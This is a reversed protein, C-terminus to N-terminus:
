TEVMKYFEQFMKEVEDKHKLLYLWTMRTCDDIFMVYWRNGNKSIVPSPGWVDTHVLDFPNRTKTMSDHYSTRHSKAEICTHCSFDKDNIGNFLHPSLKKLYGFSPHGLRKHWLMIKKKKEDEMSGALYAKGNKWDEFYYLGDRKTGHGIIRKSLLDQFVCHDPYMLAVCNLDQTLKGVSILQTSLSPVLLADNLSVDSSLKIDGAATVPYIKGNANIIGSKHAKKTNIMEEHQFTMHDSAGSDIIWNKLRSDTSLIQAGNNSTSLHCNGSIQKFEKGQSSSGMVEGLGHKRGAALGGTALGLEKPVSPKAQEQAPQGGAAHGTSAAAMNSRGKSGEGHTNKRDKWWEPYGIVEFCNERTHRTKGCSTCKLKSKDTHIFNKSQFNSLKGSKYGKSVMAFSNPAAGDKLMIGQRTAERRIYGYAQEVSPFPSLQVVQARISDLTDDLGDLLTYVRQKQVFTNFKAIDVAHEMPNPCRFDIEQWLGQLEDFFAEVPRGDQKVRAVQRNLAYVHAEDNNDYYTTAIAKWVDKATPYRIYSGRLRPELSNIIWGKVVVDETIWKQYSADQGSPPTPEGTLHQMRARGRIYMEVAQCWFSYNTGDFKVDIPSSHLIGETMAVLHSVLQTAPHPNNMAAVQMVAMQQMMRAMQEILAATSTPESSGDVPDKESPNTM